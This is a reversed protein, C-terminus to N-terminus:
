WIVGMLYPIAFKEDVTGTKIGKELYRLTKVIDVLEFLNYRNAKQNLAYIMKDPIGLISEKRESPATSQISLINRFSNYLVTILKLASGDETKMIKPYLDYAKAINRDVISNTFDFIIDGIDEHFLHHKKAELYANNWSLNNCVAYMKLKYLENQIRGYNCNCMKVIDQCYPTPMGTVAQLRNKLLSEGVFDFETIIDNHVKCFESTKKINSYLLILINGKFDQANLFKDWKGAKYYDEDNRVVYIKPEVKFLSKTMFTTYLGMVTDSYELKLNSIKQIQNIYHDQLALEEGIFVYFHNLKNNLLEEKLKSIDKM